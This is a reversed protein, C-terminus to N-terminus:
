DFDKMLHGEEKISALTPPAGIVLAAVPATEFNLIRGSSATLIIFM